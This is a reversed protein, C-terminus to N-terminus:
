LYVTRLHWRLLAEHISLETRAKWPQSCPSQEEAVSVGQRECNLRKRKLTRILITRRRLFPLSTRKRIKQCTDQCLLKLCEYESVCQCLLHWSRKYPSGEGARMNLAGDNKTNWSPYLRGGINGPPLKPKTRIINFAPICKEVGKESEILDPAVSM